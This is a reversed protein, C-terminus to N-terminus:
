CAWNISYELLQSDYPVYELVRTDPFKYDADSYFPYGPQPWRLQVDTVVQMHHDFFM